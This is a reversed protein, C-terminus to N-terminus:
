NWILETDSKRVYLMKAEQSVVGQLEIEILEAIEPNPNWDTVTFNFTEKTEKHSGPCFTRTYTGNTM